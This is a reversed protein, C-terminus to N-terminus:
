NFAANAICLRRILGLSSASIDSVGVLHGIFHIVINVWSLDALLGLFCHTSFLLAASSLVVSVSRNCQGDTRYFFM